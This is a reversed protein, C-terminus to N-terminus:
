FFDQRPTTVLWVTVMVAMPIKKGNEINLPSITLNVFRYTDSVQYYQYFIDVRGLPNLTQYGRPLEYAGSPRYDMFFLMNQRGFELSRTLTDVFGGVHRIPSPTVFAEDVAAAVGDVVGDVVALLIVAKLLLVLPM